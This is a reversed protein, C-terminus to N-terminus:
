MSSCAVEWHNADTLGGAAAIVNNPPTNFPRDAVVAYVDFKDGDRANLCLRPPPDFTGLRLNPDNQDPTSPLMLTTNWGIYIFAGPTVPDPQFLHVTLTDEVNPDTASLSINTGSSSLHETLPGFPPSATVFVPRYNVPAPARDLPTPIVCGICWIVFGYLTSNYVIGVGRRLLRRALGRRGNITQPEPMNHRMRGM